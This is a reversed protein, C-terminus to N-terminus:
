TLAILLKKYKNRPIRGLLPTLVAVLLLSCGYITRKEIPLEHYQKTPTSGACLVLRTIHKQLNTNNSSDEQGQYIKRCLFKTHLTIKPPFDDRGAFICKRLDLLDLVQYCVPTMSPWGYYAPKFLLFLGFIRDKLSM